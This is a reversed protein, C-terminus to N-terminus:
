KVAGSAVEVELTRDPTVTGCVIEPRINVKKGLADALSMGEAVSPVRMGLYREGGSTFEVLAVREGLSARAKLVARVAPYDGGIRQAMGQRLLVVFPSACADDAAPPWSMFGAGSGGGGGALDPEKCRLTEDPRKTRLIGRHREPVRWGSEKQSYAANVFVDDATHVISEVAYAGTRSFPPRPLDVKQWAGAVLHYLAGSRAVAWPDRQEVGALVSGRMARHVRKRENLSGDSLPEPPTRETLVGDRAEVWLSGDALALWVDDGMTAGSLVWTHRKRVLAEAADHTWREGDFRLLNANGDWSGSTVFLFTEAPRISLTRFELGAVAEEQFVGAVGFRIVAHSPHDPGALTSFGFALWEDKWTAVHQPEFGARLLATPTATATPGVPIARLRSEAPEWGGSSRRSVVQTVVWADGRFLPSVFNSAADDVELNSLAVRWAGGDRIWVDSRSDVRGSRDNVLLVRDPWRGVIETPFAWQWDPGSLGKTVREGDDLGRETLEALTIHDGRSYAGTTNGYTLLVGGELPWVEAHICMGDVVTYLAGSSPPRTGWSLPPPPAEDSPVPAAVAPEPLTVAATVTERIPPITSAVAVRNARPLPSSACAFPVMLSVGAALISRRM